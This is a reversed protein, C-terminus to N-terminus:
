LVTSCLRHKWLRSSPASVEFKNEFGAVAIPSEGHDNVATANAGHQLLWSVVSGASDTNEKIAEVLPIRGHEDAEMSALGKSHLLNLM